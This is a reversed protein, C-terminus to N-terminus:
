IPGILIRRNESCIYARWIVRNQKYKLYGFSKLFSHASVNFRTELDFTFTM